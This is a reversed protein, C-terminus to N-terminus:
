ATKPASTTMSRVSWITAPARRHAYRTAEVSGWCPSGAAAVLGIGYPETRYADCAGTTWAAILAIEGLYDRVAAVAQSALALEVGKMDALRFELRDEALHLSLARRDKHIWV